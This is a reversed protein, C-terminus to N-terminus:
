LKNQINIMVFFINTRVVAKFKEFHNPTIHPVCDLFYNNIEKFCKLSIKNQFAMGGLYKSHVKKKVFAQFFLGFINQAIIRHKVPKNQTNYRYRQSEM